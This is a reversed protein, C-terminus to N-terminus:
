GIQFDGDFWQMLTSLLDEWCYLDGLDIQDWAFECDGSIVVISRNEPDISQFWSFNMTEM